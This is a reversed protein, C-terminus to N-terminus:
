GVADLRPDHVRTADGEGAEQPVVKYALYSAHSIAMLSVFGESLPPLSSFADRPGLAGLMAWISGVYIGVILVTIAFQQVKSLDAAGANGVDDGLFIDTWSALEPKAFKFVRGTPDAEGPRLDLRAEASALAQESTAQNAKLQLLSPVAVFSGASIGMAFLLQVPIAIDLAGGGPKRDPGIPVLGHKINWAAGVCLASLVLVTWVLMQFKSLSVRNRSDILVGNLRGNVAGGMVMIAGLLLVATWCWTWRPPLPQAWNLWAMGAILVTLLGMALSRNENM